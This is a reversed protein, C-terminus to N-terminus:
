KGSSRQMVEIARRKAEASATFAAAISTEIAEPRMHMIELKAKAAEALFESDSLTDAFAKRLAALRAPPVGPPGAFPRGYEQQSLLIQLAQKDIGEPMMDMVFPSAERRRSCAVSSPGSLDLGLATVRNETTKLTAASTTGLRTVPRSPLTAPTRKRQLAFGAM